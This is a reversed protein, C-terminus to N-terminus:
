GVVLIVSTSDRFYECNVRKVSDRADDTVSRVDNTLRKYDISTNVFTNTTLVDFGLPDKDLVRNRFERFLGEVLTRSLDEIVM